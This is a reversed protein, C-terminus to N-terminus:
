KVKSELYEMFGEFTPEKHIRSKRYHYDVICNNGSGIICYLECEPKFHQIKIFTSDNYCEQKYEKWYNLYDSLRLCPEIYKSDYVTDGYSNTTVERWIGSISLTDSDSQGFGILCFLLLTITLLTKM